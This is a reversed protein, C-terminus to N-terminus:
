ADSNLTNEFSEVSKIPLDEIKKKSVQLLKDFNIYNMDTSEFKETIKTSRGRLNHILNFRADTLDVYSPAENFMPKKALAILVKGYVKSGSIYSALKNLTSNDQNERIDVFVAIQHNFVEYEHYRYYDEYNGDTMIVNELPNRIYFYEGTSGDSAVVLARHRFITVLDNALTNETINTLEMSSSINKGTINYSLNYKIILMDSSVNESTLQSAFINIDSNYDEKTVNQKKLLDELSIFYGIYICNDTEYINIATAVVNYKPKDSKTEDSKTELLTKPVSNLLTDMIIDNKSKEDEIDKLEFITPDCFIDQIQELINTKDCDIFDEAIRLIAIQM